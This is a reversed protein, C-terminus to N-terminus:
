VTKIPSLPTPFVKERSLQRQNRHPSSSSDLCSGLMWSLVIFLIAPSVVLGMATSSPSLVALTLWNRKDKFFQSFIIWSALSTVEAKSLVFYWVLFPTTCFQETYMIVLLMINLYPLVPKALCTIQKQTQLCSLVPSLSCIWTNWWYWPVGSSSASLKFNTFLLTPFANHNM